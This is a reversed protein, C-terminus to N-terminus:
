LCVFRGMRIKEKVSLQTSIILIFGFHSMVCSLYDFQEVDFIEDIAIVDYKERLETKNYSKFNEYTMITSKSQDCQSLLENLKTTKGSGQKGTLLISKKM